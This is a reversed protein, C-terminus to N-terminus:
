KMLALASRLLRLLVNIYSRTAALVERCFFFLFVFKANTACM